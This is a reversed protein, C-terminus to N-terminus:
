LFEAESPLGEPSPPPAEGGQPAPAGTPEGPVGAMGAKVKAENIIGVASIAENKAAIVAHQEAYKSVAIAIRVEKQKDKMTLNKSFDLLHQMFAANAGRNIEPTKGEAIMREAEAAESLLAKLGPKAMSFADKIEDENYGAIKLYQRDKWFPNVTQVTGLVQARRKNNDQEEIKGENGGEIIIEFEHLTELDDSAFDEWEVGNAGMVAIPVKADNIHDKLGIRYKLGIEAWCESFSKNNTNLRDEIQQLEGFFIGVKKDSEASGQSGPTSATKQGAYSDLFQVLPITGNLEGVTFEYIGNEISKTGNKTDVPIRADPRWDELAEVDKFMTPDYALKGANVRERNYLEQNILRNINNAVPRADDCPAKSWFLRPDENTHWCSYPWLADDMGTPVTYIERLPKIRLWLGTNDDFLCYWRVGRFTLYWEALKFIDQGVYNNSG